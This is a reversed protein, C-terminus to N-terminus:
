LFVTVNMSVQHLSLNMRTLPRFGLQFTYQRLENRSCVCPHSPIRHKSEIYALKSQMELVMPMMSELGGDGKPLMDADLKRSLQGQVCVHVHPMSVYMRVCAYVFCVYMCMYM